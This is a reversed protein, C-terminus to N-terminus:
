DVARESWIELFSVAALQITGPIIDAKRARRTTSHRSASKGAHDLFDSEKRWAIEFLRRERIGHIRPIVVGTATQAGSELLCKRGVYFDLEDPHPRQEVKRDIGYRMDERLSVTCQTSNM